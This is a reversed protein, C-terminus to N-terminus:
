FCKLFLKTCTEPWGQVKVLIHILVSKKEAAVVFYINLKMIGIKPTYQTYTHPWTQIASQTYIIRQTEASAPTIEQCPADRQIWVKSETREAKKWEEEEWRKMQVWNMDRQRDWYICVYVLVCAKGAIWGFVYEGRAELSRKRVFSKM